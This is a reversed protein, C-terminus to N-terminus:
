CETTYEIAQMCQQQGKWSHGDSNEEEDEDMSYSNYKKSGPYHLPSEPSCSQQIDSNSYGLELTDGGMGEDKSSPTRSSAGPQKRIHLRYKQLHSKVEDNTLGDVQMLERIQKPTAVQSGGLKELADVFRRHLEPSWCRRQKRSGSQYGLKPQLKGTQVASGALIVGTGFVRCSPEVVPPTVLSLGPAKEDEKFSSIVGVESKRKKEEKETSPAWLQVSSMWDKKDVVDIGLKVGVSEGFKGEQQVRRQECKKVKEKFKGIVDKLLTFSLPLERQFAQIKKIEEELGNILQNLKILDASDGVDIIPYNSLPPSLDLSLEPLNCVM